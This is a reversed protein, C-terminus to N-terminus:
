IFGYKKEAAQRAKIAQEKSSFNGLYIQKGNVSIRARWNMTRPEYGVGTVGSGNDKRRTINRNNITATALRLNEIRNDDKIRNIHDIQDPPWTGHVYFWALRHAKFILGLVMIHIYGDPHLTGAVNGSVERGGTDVRRVFHGTEPYYTLERLLSQHSLSAQKIDRLEKINM